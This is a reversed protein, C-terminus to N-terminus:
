TQRLWDGVEELFAKRNEVHVNHGAGPITVERLHPFWYLMDDADGDEIFGSKAGRVLLAPGNFRDTELLSNQRIHPLSAHLAEINAQWRFTRTGQGRVLNTLLFQRMAWDPVMPELAAEAEKRSDLEAVAISKMARFENDHYPPYAKAAIDVIILKKVQDPNECAYRMAIKGGLSHGMLIVENLGEKELYATLDASLEAWRMSEAHPSSGHNRLDLAHVDFREQLARGITTWNRSAGLLGHLIVLAPAGPNEFRLANLPLSM